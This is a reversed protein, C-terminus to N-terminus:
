RQVEKQIERIYEIQIQEPAIKRLDTLHSKALKSAHVIGRAEIIESAWAVLFTIQEPYRPNRMKYSVEYFKMM